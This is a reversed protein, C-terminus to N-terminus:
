RSLEEVGRFISAEAFKSAVYLEFFSLDLEFGRLGSVTSDLNLVRRFLSYQIVPYLHPSVGTFIDIPLLKQKTPM